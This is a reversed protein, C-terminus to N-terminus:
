VENSKPVTMEGMFRASGPMTGTWMSACANAGSFGAATAIRPAPEANGARKREAIAPVSSSAASAVRWATM